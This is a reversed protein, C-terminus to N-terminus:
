VRDTKLHLIEDQCDEPVKEVSLKFPNRVLDSEDDSPEPFYRKFENERATLHRRKWNELKTIFARLADIFKIINTNRGQMQLNLKNLQEFIDVVYALRM